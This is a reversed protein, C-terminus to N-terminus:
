DREGHGTSPIRPRSDAQSALDLTRLLTVFSLNQYSIAPYAGSLIMHRPTVNFLQRNPLFKFSM